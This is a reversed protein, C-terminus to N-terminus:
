LHIKNNLALYLFVLSVVLLLLLILLINKGGKTLKWGHCTCHKSCSLCYDELLIGCVCLRLGLIDILRQIPSYM